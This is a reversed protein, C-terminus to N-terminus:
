KQRKWVVLGIVGACVLVAVIFIWIVAKSDNAPKEDAGITVTSDDVDTGDDGAKISGSSSPDTKGKGTESQKVM